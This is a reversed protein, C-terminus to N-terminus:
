PKVPKVLKPLEVGVARSLAQLALEADYWAKIKEAGAGAVAVFADTLERTDGVGVDFNEYAATAWRRANKEAEGFSKARAQAAVLDSRAKTVEVRIGLAIADKQAELKKLQAEAQDVHASKQPLDFTMHAVLAIGSSLDNYPDYAFPSRQRTASSTYAFNFFGLIGFDPFYERKRILLEAQKAVLGANAARIEPRFEESLRVYEEVPQLEYNPATLDQAVIEIPEAPRAGIVIRLAELAFDMSSQVEAQKAAILQRYYGVKFLDLQSVQESNKDLMSQIRKGADDIRTIDEAFSGLGQRAAQYGFFAEEVQETIEAETREKLAQGIIPGQDGARKLAEIKGFTYIPLLATTTARVTYGVNGLDADYMYSAATTPPGGLGNNRAEPTPGAFAILTEFKPFWAWHAEKRKGIFDEIDAQAARERPDVQKARTILEDLTLPAAHAIASATLALAALWSRARWSRKVRSSIVV